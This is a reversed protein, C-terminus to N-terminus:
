ILNCCTSEAKSSTATHVNSSKVKKRKIKSGGNVFGELIDQLEALGDTANSACEVYATAGLERALRLGQDFSTPALHRAELRQLAEPDNRLDRKTGVLIV